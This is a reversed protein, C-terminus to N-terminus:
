SKFEKYGTPIKFKNADIKKKTMKTTELKSKLKGDLGTTKGVIPFFGANEPIQMFFLAEKDKRNLASLLSKFFFYNGNDIVWYEAKTKMDKNTVTWKVCNYGLIKKKESTKFTECKSLDKVSPKSKINMHLKRDHNIATVKKTKLDILMTGSVTGDKKLEDIRVMSSTVYYIYKTEDYHNKKTFEITGEFNQAMIITTIILCLTLTIPKLFNM